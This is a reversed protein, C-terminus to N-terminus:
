RGKYGSAYIASAQKNAQKVARARASKSSAKYHYKKGHAGWKVWAGKKDRGYQKPM